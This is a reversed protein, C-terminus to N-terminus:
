ADDTVMGKETHHPCGEGFPCGRSKYKDLIYHCCFTFDSNGNGSLSRYHDCGMCYQERAM